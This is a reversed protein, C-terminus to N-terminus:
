EVLGEMSMIMMKIGGKESPLTPLAQDKLCVLSRRSILACQISFYTLECEHKLPNLFVIFM